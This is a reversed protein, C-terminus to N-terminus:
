YYPRRSVKSMGSVLSAQVCMGNAIIFHGEVAYDINADYQSLEIHSIM